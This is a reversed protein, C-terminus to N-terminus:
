HAFWKMEYKSKTSYFGVHKTYPRLTVVKTTSNPRQGQIPDIQVYVKNDFVTVFGADFTHEVRGLNQYIRITKGSRVAKIISEVSGSVRNANADQHYLLTAEHAYVCQSSFLATLIVVLNVIRNM